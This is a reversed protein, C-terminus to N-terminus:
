NVKRVKRRLSSRQTRPKATPSPIGFLDNAAYAPRFVMSKVGENLAGLTTDLAEIGTTNYSRFDKTQLWDPISSDNVPANPVNDFYIGTEDVVKGQPKAVSDGKGLYKGAMGKTIDDGELGFEDGIVQTEMALKRTNLKDAVEGYKKYRDSTQRFIDKNLDLEGKKLTLEGTGLEMQNDLQRGFLTNRTKDVGIKGREVELGADQARVTAARDAAKDLFTDATRMTKIDRSTGSLLGTDKFASGTPEFDKNFKAVREAAGAREQQMRAIDQEDFDFDNLEVNMGKKKKTAM